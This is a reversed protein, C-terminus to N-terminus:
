KNEKLVRMNESVNHVRVFLVGQKKALITSDITPKLRTHIDGGFMSKMSTGLLIPYRFYDVLKQYNNLLEWDEINNKNFGIGGDLLIKNPDVKNEILIKIANELGTIKDEFLNDISSERRNHMVCVSANYKGIVEALRKDQLMSVDNIMDAGEALVAEAVEPYYTDVSIPCKLKKLECIKPLVREIEEKWSVQKHGPRTSQGGVDLIEAGDDIMKKAVDVIKDSVRSDEFFSDPTVNLIGMIHTGNKFITNGVKFNYERM